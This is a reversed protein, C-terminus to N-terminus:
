EESSLGLHTQLSETKCTITKYAYCKKCMYDTGATSIGCCEWEHDSESTCMKNVLTEIPEDVPNIKVRQGREPQSKLQECIARNFWETLYQIFMERLEVIDTTNYITVTEPYEINICYVEQQPDYIIKM